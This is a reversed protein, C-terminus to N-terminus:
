VQALPVPTWFCDREILGFPAVYVREMEPLSMYGMERDGTVRNVTLGFAEGSEVDVEVVYYDVSPSFYHVAATKEGVPIGETAYLAPVKKMDAKPAIFRHGRRKRNIEVRETYTPVATTM